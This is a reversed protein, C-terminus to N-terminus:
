DGARRLRTWRALQAAVRLPALSKKDAPFHPQLRKPRRRVHELAGAHAKTMVAQLQRYLTPGEIQHHPDGEAHLRLNIEAVTLYRATAALQFAREIATVYEKM